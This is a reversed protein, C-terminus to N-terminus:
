PPTFSLPFVRSPGCKATRLMVSGFSTTILTGVSQPNWAGPNKRNRRSVTDLRGIQAAAGPTGPGPPGINGVFSIPM